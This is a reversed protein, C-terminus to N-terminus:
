TTWDLTLLPETGDDVSKGTIDLMMIDGEAIGVYTLVYDNIAIDFNASNVINLGVGDVAAAQTDWTNLLGDVLDDYKVQANFVISAESGRNCVQFGSAGAGVWVAPHAVEISFSKLTANIDAVKFTGADMNGLTVNTTNAYVSPSSVDTEDDLDTYKTGTSFTM